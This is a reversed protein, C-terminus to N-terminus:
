ASAITGAHPQPVHPSGVTTVQGEASNDIAYTTQTHHMQMHTNYKCIHSAEAYTYHMQMETIHIHPPKLLPIIHNPWPIYTHHTTTAHCMAWDTTNTNFYHLGQCWRDGLSSSTQQATGFTWPWSCCNSCAKLPPELSCCCQCKSKSQPTINTPHSSHWNAFTYKYSIYKAM